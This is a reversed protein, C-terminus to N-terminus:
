IEPLKEARRYRIYGGQWSYRWSNGTVHFAHLQSEFAHERNKESVDGCEPWPHYDHLANKEEEHKQRGAEVKEVELLSYRRIAQKAEGFKTGACGFRYLIRGVTTRHCNWRQAIQSASLYTIAKM